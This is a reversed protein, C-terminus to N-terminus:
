FLKPSMVVNLCAVTYTKKICYLVATLSTLSSQAPLAALPDPFVDRSLLKSLSTM